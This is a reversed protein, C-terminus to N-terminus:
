AETGNLTSVVAHDTMQGNPGYVATSPNDLTSIARLFAASADVIREIQMAESKTSIIAERLKGDSQPPVGGLYENACRLDVVAQELIEECERICALDGSQLQTLAVSLSARARTLYRLCQQPSGM